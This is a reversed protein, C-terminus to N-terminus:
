VNKSRNIELKEAFEFRKATKEFEEETKKLKHLLDGKDEIKM